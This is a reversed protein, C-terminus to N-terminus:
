LMEAVGAIIQYEGALVPYTTNCGRVMLSGDAELSLHGASNAGTLGNYNTTVNSASTTNRIVIANRQSSGQATFYMNSILWMSYMATSVPPNKKFLWVFGNPNSRISKLYDNAPFITLNGSTVDSAVTTTFVRANIGEVNVNAKAFDTVDHEGNETITKTGTPTIGSAPVTVKAEAYNTVDYTGNATIERTGSPTVGGSGAGFGDILRNVADHLTADSAGTKANSAAIDAQMQAKVTDPTHVTAM